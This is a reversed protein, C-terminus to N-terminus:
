DHLGLPIHKGSSVLWIFVLCVGLPCSIHLKAFTQQEFETSLCIIHQGVHLKPDSLNLGCWCYLTSQLFSSVIIASICRVQAQVLMYGCSFETNLTTVSIHPTLSGRCACSTNCFIKVMYQIIYCRVPWM